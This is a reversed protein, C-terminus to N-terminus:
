LFIMRVPVAPYADVDFGQASFRADSTAKSARGVRQRESAGLTENGGFSGRRLPLRGFAAASLGSAGVMSLSTAGTRSRVLPSCWRWGARRARRSGAVEQWPPDSGEGRTTVGGHRVRAKMVRSHARWEGESIPGILDGASGQTRERHRCALAYASYASHQGQVTRAWHASIDSTEVHPLIRILEGPTSYPSREPGHHCPPCYKAV